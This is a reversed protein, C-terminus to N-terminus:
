SQPTGFQRTWAVNGDTDYRRIFADRPGGAFVQGPLAGSTWGAVYTDGVADVAVSTAADHAPSGFQRSWIGQASAPERRSALLAFQVVALGLIAVGGLGLLHKVARSRGGAQGGDAVWPPKSHSIRM